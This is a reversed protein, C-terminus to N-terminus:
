SSKLFNRLCALSMIGGGIMTLGTGLGVTSFGLSQIYGIKGTPLLKSIHPSAFVTLALASIILASVTDPKEPETKLLIGYTVMMNFAGTIAVPSATKMLSFAHPRACIGNVKNALGSLGAGIFTATAFTVGVAMPTGIPGLEM